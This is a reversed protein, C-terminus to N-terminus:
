SKGITSNGEVTANEIDPAAGEPPAVPAVAQQSAGTKTPTHQKFTKRLQSQLKLGEEISTVLALQNHSKSLKAMALQQQQEYEDRHSM